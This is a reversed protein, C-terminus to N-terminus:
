KKEFNKAQIEIIVVDELMNLALQIFPAMNIVGNVIFSADDIPILRMEQHAVELRVAGHPTQMESIFPVPYSPPQPITCGHKRAKSILDNIDSEFSRDQDSDYKDIDAKIDAYVLVQYNQTNMPTGQHKKYRM